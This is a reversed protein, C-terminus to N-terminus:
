KHKIFCGPPLSFSSVINIKLSSIESYALRHILYNGKHESIFNTIKVTLPTGKSIFSLTIFAAQFIRKLPKETLDRNLKNLVVFLKRIQM